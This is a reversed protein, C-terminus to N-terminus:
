ESQREDLPVLTEFGYRLMAVVVFVWNALVIRGVLWKGISAGGGYSHLGSSLVYNVGYWAMVILTMGLVSGVALGFNSTWGAYRGHLIAMYGLLSILAWVEKADWGWFRGWAVDAWLAGLITGIALLLVAVQIARYIFKALTACAEPPRCGGLPKGEKDKVPERYRGFLCYSLSINGLGWALAGAGYSATITLVHVTLWFNDRLVPNLAEIERGGIPAYYAILSALLGVAAGVAAISKRRVIEDFLPRRAVVCWSWPVTAISLLFALVVRPVFWAIPALTCLGVFWTLLDNASPMTGGFGAIPLLNIIAKNGEAGHTAETLTYLIWILMTLWPVFLIAQAFGLWPPRGWSSSLGGNQSPEGQPEEDKKARRWIGFLVFHDGRPLGTMRWALSIGPWLLPMLALWAGFFTVVIAVFIISEFMNTVSMWGTILTRATLGYTMVGSAVLLLFLGAWFMPKRLRSFALGFCGLSLFCLVWAWKFPDIRNYALEIDSAGPSPYATAALMKAKDAANGPVALKKRLPEIAEALQRVAVTFDTMATAFREPRDSAQRDLYVAKLLAFAARVDALEPQPYDKLLSDSGFLLTQIALWPQNDDEIDRDARLAAANLAPVLRLSHGNDYLARHMEAAAKALDATRVAFENAMSRTAMQRSHLARKNEDAPPMEAFAKRCLIDAHVALQTTAERYAVLVPDAEALTFHPRRVLRILAMKSADVEDLSAALEADGDVQVWQQLSQKLPPWSQIAGILKEVFFQRSDVPSGPQFSVLRYLNYAGVLECAKENQAWAAHQNTDIEALRQYAEAVQQPTVYKLRHGEKSRLPVELLKERLIKHRAIILPTQEWAEPEVLWSFLLEASGFKRPKDGPFLRRGAAHAALQNPSFTPKAKGCITGVMTQAYTDLPMLRGNHYVPMKRWETWDLREGHAPAATSPLAVSPSAVPAVSAAPTVSAKGSPAVSPTVAPTAVTPTVAAAVDHSTEARAVNGWALGIAVVLLSATTAVRPKKRIAFVYAKMLYMLAIGVCILLSGLYKLGRGPDYNVSLFSRFLRDRRQRGGVNQRFIPDGPRNPKGFSSQYLRFSRGTTLDTFNAPENMTVLVKEQLRKNLDDRDCFDVLSSYDWVMQSGPDLKRSFEHLYVQIGIDVSNSGLTVAVERGKGRVSQRYLERQDTAKMDDPLAALWFGRGRGDVTLQLRVRRQKLFSSKDKKFALPLVETGPSKAAVFKKVSLKTEQDTGEWVVVSRGDSPLPGIAEVRPALWARYYLKRDAGQLIDIRPRRAKALMAEAYSHHKQGEPLEPLTPDVWYSGFLGNDYQRSNREVVDALLILQQPPADGHHIALQVGLMQSYVNTLAVDFGTDGLPLRKAAMLEAISFEFRKGVVHLVVRGKADIPGKPRSDLFADTEAQDGTMMFVVRAGSRLEKRTGMGYPAARPSPEVVLEVVQSAVGALSEAQPSRTAIHLRIRPVPMERSDVLYDIVELRIGDKDYLIGEDRAVLAWPFRNMNVYDNWNFPGAVFPITITESTESTESADAANPPTAADRRVTLRLSQSDDLLARWSSGGEYIALDANIGYLFTLVCGGMLLLIGIHTVVFGTQYHKWPLRVLMAALVNIALLGNLGIFWPAGYVGFRVARFGYVSDVLTAWALVGAFITILVVAVRLSGAVRLLGILIRILLSRDSASKDARPM